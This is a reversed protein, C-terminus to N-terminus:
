HLQPVKHKIQLFQHLGKEWQMNEKHVVGTNQYDVIRINDNDIKYNVGELLNFKAQIASEILIKEYLQYLKFSILSYFKNLMKVLQQTKKLINTQTLLQIAMMGEPDSDFPKARSQLNLGMDIWSYHMLLCPILKILLLMDKNDIEWREQNQINMDQYILKSVIHIEMYLKVIMVHFSKRERIQNMYIILSLYNFYNIFLVQNKLMQQQCCQLVIVIDVNTKKKKCLLLTLMSVILTKGEGTYIQALCGKNNDHNYLEIVSLVYIFYIEM